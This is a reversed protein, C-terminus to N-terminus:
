AQVTDATFLTPALEGEAASDTVGLELLILEIKCSKSWQVPPYTYLKKM